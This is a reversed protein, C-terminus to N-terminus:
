KAKGFRIIVDDVDSVWKPPYFQRQLEVETLEIVNGADTMIKFIEVTEEVPKYYTQSYIDIIHGNGTFRGDRTALQAGFVLEGDTKGVAWPPIQEDIMKQIEQDVDPSNVWIVDNCDSM